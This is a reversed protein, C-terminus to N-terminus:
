IQLKRKGEAKIHSFNIKLFGKNHKNESKANVQTLTRWKKDTDM